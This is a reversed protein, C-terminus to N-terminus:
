KKVINDFYIKQVHTNAHPYYLENNLYSRFETGSINKLKKHSCSNEIIYDKCVSCYVGGNSFFPQISFYKRFKKVYNISDLKGYLNEAGAHDRGVYFFDFGLNERMSMHHLAERPGAYHFNSYIPKFKIKSSSKSYFKLTESIVFDSFDNPKKIGFIPNIVLCDYNDTIHKFIAEHGFHPVNRIQMACVKLGKAKLKNIQKKLNVINKHYKNLKFKYKQKIEANSAFIDGFRFYKKVGVYDLNNTNFIHKAFSRKNIKFIKSKSYDFYKLGVPLCIPVGYFKYKYFNLLQNNELFDKQFKFLGNKLNSYAILYEDIDKM